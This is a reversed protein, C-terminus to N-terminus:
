EKREISQIISQGYSEKIADVFDTSPVTNRNISHAWRKKGNVYLMLAKAPLEVSRDPYILPIHGNYLYRAEDGSKYSFTKGSKGRAPDSQLIFFPQINRIGLKVTKGTVSSDYNGMWFENQNIYGGKIARPDAFVGETKNGYRKTLKRATENFELPFNKSIRQHIMEFIQDRLSEISFGNLSLRIAM